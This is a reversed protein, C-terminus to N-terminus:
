TDSKLLRSVWFLGVVQLVVALMLMGRGVSDEWLGQGYEPQFLFLYAFLLPGLAAIVLVSIRGAGTVARMQRHYNRRDRIVRALRELTEAINGGADRHVSIASSFIRVGPWNGTIGIPVEVFTM